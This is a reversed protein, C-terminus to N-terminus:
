LLEALNRVGAAYLLEMHAKEYQTQLKLLKVRAELLETERTNVLFISSEGFEFKRSEGALLAEYNDVMQSQLIILENLNYLTNYATTTNNIAQRRQFPGELFNQEIKIQTMALKAREKRLFLPFYFQVGLKYDNMFWRGESTSPLSAGDNWLPETLFNYKLNIEPKLFERYLQQDIQLQQGKVQQKIIDPHNQRAFEQLRSLNELSLLTTDVQRVPVTGRALEMPVVDDDTAKWLFVSLMLRANEYELEAQQRQVAREQYNIYAKLSDFPAVDGNEVQRVIGQYRVEALEEVDRVVRYYRYAYYWDWYSKAATLLAKNIEKVRDVEAMDQMLRAVRVAARREDMFLGRGLPLSVGAYLLGDETNQQEDNLYAGTNQEYGVNLDAPIWLPVELKSDWSRYYETGKFEKAAFNSKLKPDFNGRALRLEQRALENLLFSQRVVPHNVLVVDFFEDISLTTTDLLLSDPPEPLSLIPAEEQMVTAELSGIGQTTAEGVTPRMESQGQALFSLCVSIAILLVIRM